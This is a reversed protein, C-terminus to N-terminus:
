VGEIYLSISLRRFLSNKNAKHLLYFSDKLVFNNTINKCSASLSTAFLFAFFVVLDDALLSSLLTTRMLADDGTDAALFSRATSASTVLTVELDFLLISFDM